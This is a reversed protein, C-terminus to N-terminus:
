KPSRTCDVIERLIDAEAGANSMMMGEEGPPVTNHAEAGPHEGDNSPAEMDVDPYMADRAEFGGCEVSKALDLKPTRASAVHSCM